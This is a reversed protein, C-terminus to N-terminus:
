ATGGFAAVQVRRWAAFAYQGYSDANLLALGPWATALAEDSRVDNAPSDNDPPFGRADLVKGSAVTPVDCAFFCAHALEHLMTVVTADGRVRAETSLAGRWDGGSPAITTSRNFFGRGIYFPVANGPARNRTTYGFTGRWFSRADNTADIVALGAPLAIPIPAPAPAVPRPAEFQARARAVNSAGAAVPVAPAVPNVSLVAKIAKFNDTVFDRHDDSYTGFFREFRAQGPADMHELDDIAAQLAARSDKVANNVLAVEFTKWTKFDAHTPALLAIDPDTYVRFGHATALPDNPGTSVHPTYFKWASATRAEMQTRHFAGPEVPARVVPPAPVVVPAAGAAGPTLAALHATVEADFRTVVSNKKRISTQWETGTGKTAKWSVLAAALAQTKTLPTGPAAPDHFNKLATDVAKLEKSRSHAFVSTAKKWSDVTTTIPM